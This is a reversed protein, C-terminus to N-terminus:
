RDQIVLFQRGQEFEPKSKFWFSAALSEIAKIYDVTLIDMDIQIIWDVEGSVSGASVMRYFTNIGPRIVSIEDELKRLLTNVQDIKM